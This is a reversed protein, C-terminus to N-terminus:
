NTDEKGIHRAHTIKKVFDEKIRLTFHISSM